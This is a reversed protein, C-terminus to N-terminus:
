AKKKLYDVLAKADALAKTNDIEEPSMLEQLNMDAMSENPDGCKAEVLGTLGSIDDLNDGIVDAMCTFIEGAARVATQIDSNSISVESLIEGAAAMTDVAQQWQAPDSSMFAFMSMAAAMTPMYIVSIESALKLSANYEGVSIKLADYLKKAEADEKIARQSGLTDLDTNLSTAVGSFIAKAKEGMIGFVNKLDLDPDDEDFEDELGSSISELELQMREAAGDITAVINDATKLSAAYDDKSPGGNLVFMFLYIAGAALLLVAIIIGILLGKKSKPKEEGMMVPPVPDNTGGSTFFPAPAANDPAAPTQPEPSMPAGMPQEPNM